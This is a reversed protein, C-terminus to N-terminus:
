SEGKSESNLRHRASLREYNLDFSENDSIRNSRGSVFYDALVARVVFPVHRRTYRLILDWDVLRTMGTDFGGYKAYLHRRHMFVNLDIFNMQELQARDYEPVWTRFEGKEEDILNMGSYGCDKNADAFRTVMYRLYEPHWRNDSDLYAILEGMSVALGSNRTASVGHHPGLLLRIRPERIALSEAVQVTQDTSGDDIVLLEWNEYSQRLVSLIARNLTNERNFVPMIISVKPSYSWAQIPVGEHVGSKPETIGKEIRDLAVGLSLLRAQVAEFHVTAVVVADYVLQGIQEPSFVRHGCFCTGHKTLDGDVVAVVETATSIHSLVYKGGQGAGYLVVRRSNVTGSSDCASDPGLGTSLGNEIRDSTVGLDKLRNAVAAFQVTAVVVCDFEIAQISDPDLVRYGCFYTDHKKPDSDCVAVVCSDSPMRFLVYRGNNGAGYLIIKRTRSM